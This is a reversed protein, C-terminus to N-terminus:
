WCFMKDASTNKLSSNVLTYTGGPQDDSLTPTTTVGTEAGFVIFLDGIASTIVVTKAGAATTFTVGDTRYSAMLRRRSILYHTCRAEAHRYGHATGSESGLGQVNRSIHGM